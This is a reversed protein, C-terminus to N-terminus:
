SLRRNSKKPKAKLFPTGFLPKKVAFEEQSPDAFYVGTLKFELVADVFPQTVFFRDRVEPVKFAAVRPVRDSIFHYNSVSLLKAPDDPSYLMKSRGKDLCDIVTDVNLIYYLENRGHVTVELLEFGKNQLQAMVNAAHESLVYAAWSLSMMFDNEPKGPDVSPYFTLGQWHAKISQGSFTEKFYKRGTSGPLDLMIGDDVSINASFVNM